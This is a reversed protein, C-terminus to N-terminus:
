WNQPKLSWPLCWLHINTANYVYLSWTLKSCLPIRTCGPIRHTEVVMDIYTCDPSWAVMSGIIQWFIYTKRQLRGARLFGFLCSPVLVCLSCRIIIWIKWLSEKNHNDSYDDVRDVYERAVVAGSNHCICFQSKIQPCCLNECSKVQLSMLGKYHTSPWGLQGYILCM